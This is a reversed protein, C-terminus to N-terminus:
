DCTDIYRRIRFEGFREVVDPDPYLILNKHPLFM